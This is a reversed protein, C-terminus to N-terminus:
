DKKKSLPVEPYKGSHKVRSEPLERRLCDSFDDINLPSKL